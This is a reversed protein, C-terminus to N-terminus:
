ENSLPDFNYDSHDTQLEDVEDPMVRKFDDTDTPAPTTAEQNSSVPQKSQPLSPHQASPIERVIGDDYIKLKIPQGGAQGTLLFHRTQVIEVLDAKLDPYRQNIQKMVPFPISFVPVEKALSMIEGDAAVTMDIDILDKNDVTKTSKVEFKDYGDDTVKEIKTIKKRDIYHSVTNRVAEPLGDFKMESREGAALTATSILSFMLLGYTKYRM